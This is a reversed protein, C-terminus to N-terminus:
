RILGVRLLLRLTASSGQANCGAQHGYSRLGVLRLLVAPYSLYAPLCSRSVEESELPTGFNTRADLYSISLFMRLGVSGVSLRFCFRFLVFLFHFLVFCFRLLFSVPFFFRFLFLCFLFSIFCFRFLFLVFCFRFLFMRSSRAFTAFIARLVHRFNHAFCKAMNQAHM